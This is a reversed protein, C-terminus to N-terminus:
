NSHFAIRNGETDKIVAMFGHEEGIQRKEIIIQGGAKEVKSLPVQLDPNGNLYLLPGQEGPSYFDKNQVLAGGVKDQSNPFLAMIFGDGMDLDIMEIEFVTQYFAKAREIDEAPIELWNIVNGTLDM